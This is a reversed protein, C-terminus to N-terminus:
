SQVSPIESKGCRAFYEGLPEGRESKVPTTIWLSPETKGTFGSVLSFASVRDATYRIKLNLSGTCSSTVIYSTVNKERLSLANSTENGLIAEVDSRKMGVLAFQTLFKSLQESRSGGFAGFRQKDSWTVRNFEITGVNVAALGEHFPFINAYITPVLHKGSKDIVGYAIDANVFGTVIALGQKFLFDEQRVLDPCPYQAPIVFIGSREIFGFRAGRNPSLQTNLVGQLQETHGFQNKGGIAVAALGDSFDQAYSCDAPLHIVTKGDADVYKWHRDVDMVAALGEHFGGFYAYKNSLDPPTKVPEFGLVASAGTAGTFDFAKDAVLVCQNGTQPNEGQLHWDRPLTDVINLGVDCICFGNLGNVLKYKGRVSLINYFTDQLIKKRGSSFIAYTTKSSRIPESLDQMYQNGSKDIFIPKSRDLSNTGKLTGICQAFGHNFNGASLYQPKICLHGSVDFYGWNDSTANLKALSNPSDFALIPSLTSLVLLLAILFKASALRYSVVLLKSM